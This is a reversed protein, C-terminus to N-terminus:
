LTPRISKALVEMAQSMSELTENELATNSYFLDIVMHSVGLEKFEQFSDMVHSRPGIFPRSRDASLREDIKFPERAGIGIEEANRGYTGAIEQIYAKGARVDDATPRTPHWYDGLEVARRIGRRSNGGVWIPPHPKQVPRPEFHMGNSPGQTWLQKILRLYSDSVSGRNQFDAGLTEFEERYWGAACGFILRGGSLTDITSLQKATITPNRYPLIIATTGLRVRKTVAAAYTLTIIPEYFLRGYRKAQEDTLLVHDTVWISDLGINEAYEAMIRIADPSAMERFHPLSIGIQM